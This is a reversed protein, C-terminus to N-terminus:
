VFSYWNRLKTETFQVFQLFKQLNHIIHIIIANTSKYNIYFNNNRNENIRSSLSQRM